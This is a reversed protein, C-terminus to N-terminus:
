HEYPFSREDNKKPPQFGIPGKHGDTRLTWALQEYDHVTPADKKEYSGCRIVKVHIDKDHWSCKVYLKGNVTETVTAGRCSLCLAEGDRPTGNRVNIRAM